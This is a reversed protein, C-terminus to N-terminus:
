DIKNEEKKIRYIEGFLKGIVGKGERRRINYKYCIVKITLGIIALSGFVVLVVAIMLDTLHNGTIM